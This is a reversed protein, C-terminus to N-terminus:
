TYARVSEEALIESSNEDEPFSEETETFQRAAFPRRLSPDSEVAYRGGYYKSLMGGTEGGQGM